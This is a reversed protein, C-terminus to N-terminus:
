FCKREKLKFLLWIPLSRLGGGGFYDWWYRAHRTRIDLLPTGREYNYEFAAVLYALPATSRTFERFSIPYDSTPAWQIGNELEYLIRGLQYDGNTYDSSGYHSQIWNTLKTYPTWQVLGFGPGTGVRDGEWRGPNISSELEMNGLMACVANLTWGEPLLANAIITANNQMEATNLARSEAVIWNPM